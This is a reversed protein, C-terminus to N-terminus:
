RSKIRRARRFEWVFGGVFAVLTLLLLPEIFGVSVAGIGGGGSGLQAWIHPIFMVTITLLSAAVAAALGVLMGKLVAIM